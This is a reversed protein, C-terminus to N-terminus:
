QDSSFAGPVLPLATAMTCHITAPHFKAALCTLRLTQKGGQVAITIEVTQNSTFSFTVLHSTALETFPFKEHKVLVSKACKLKKSIDVLALFNAEASM